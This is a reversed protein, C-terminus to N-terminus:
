TVAESAELTEATRRQGLQTASNPAAKELLKLMKQVAVFVAAHLNNRTVFWRFEGYHIYNNRADHLRWLWLEEGGNENPSHESVRVRHPEPLRALLDPLNALRISPLTASPLDSEDGHSRAIARESRKELAGSGNTQTLFGVCLGQLANHSAVVAWKWFSHSIRTKDLALVLMEISARIDTDLDHEFWDDLPLSERFEETV